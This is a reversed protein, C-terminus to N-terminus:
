EAVKVKSLTLTQAGSADEELSGSVTLKKGANAKIEKLLDEDKPNVLKVDGLKDGEIKATVKLGVKGMKYGDTLKKIESIKVKPQAAFEVIFVGTGQNFDDQVVNKAGELRKLAALM